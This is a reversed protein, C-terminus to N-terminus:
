KHVNDPMLCVTLTANYKCQSMEFQVKYWTRNKKDTIKKILTISFTNLDKDKYIHAKLDFIQKVTVLREFINDKFYELSINDTNNLYYYMFCYFAQNMIFLMDESNMLKDPLILYPSNNYKYRGKLVSNKADFELYDKLLYQFEPTYQEHFIQELM